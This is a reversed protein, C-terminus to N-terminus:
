LCLKRVMALLANDSPRAPTHIAAWGQGAAAAIRPGLAALTIQARDLGLRDCERALHQATAASYLLMVLPSKDAATVRPNLPLDVSEYAIVTDIEIGAPVNLPVHEAGSIRLLRAPPAIADLVNQLGGTGCTAITFGAERAADATAAGVAHVPKDILAALGEGGHRIANASGILLADIAAPDPCNWALPRIQSLPHPLPKLGMARAAEVSASLGPEPRLILVRVSM